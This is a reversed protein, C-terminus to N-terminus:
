RARSSGCGSAGGVHTPEALHLATHIPDFRSRPSSILQRAGKVRAPACGRFTSTPYVGRVPTCWRGSGFNRANLSAVEAARQAYEYAGAVAISKWSDMCIAHSVFSSLAAAIRMMRLGM